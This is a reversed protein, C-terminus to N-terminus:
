CKAQGELRDLTRRVVVQKWLAIVMSGNGKFACIVFRRAFQFLTGLKGLLNSHRISALFLRVYIQVAIKEVERNSIDAFALDALSFSKASDLKKIKPNSTLSNLANIQYNYTSTEDFLGIPNRELYRLFFVLDEGMKLNPFKLGNLSKRRFAIRWIGLGELLWFDPESRSKNEVVRKNESLVDKAIFTNYNTVLYDMVNSESHELVTILKSPLPEDDSDWFVIWDGQAREIGANRAQGPGGFNGEILELKEFNKFERIVEEKCQSTGEFRDWVLVVQLKQQIRASQTRWLYSYRIFDGSEQFPIVATLLVKEEM